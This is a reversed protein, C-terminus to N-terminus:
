LSAIFDDMSEFEEYDGTARDREAEQEREQWESSWYWAQDDDNQLANIFNLVAQLQEATLQWLMGQANQLLTYKDSTQVAM